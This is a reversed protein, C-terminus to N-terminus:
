SLAYHSQKSVVDGSDSDVDRASGRSTDVYVLFALLVSFTLTSQPIDVVPHDLQFAVLSFGIFTGGYIACPLSDSRLARYGIICGVVLIAVFALGTIIGARYVTLLPANAVFNLNFAYAGNKFEPRGWGLGFPWHGAMQHPFNQLADKRASTGTDDSSFSSFIRHRVAPTLLAVAVLLGLAGVAIQRDRSRMTHFILVLVLGVLFSFIAQRSLTLLLAVSLIVALCNRLWGRFLILCLLLAILISIGAANPEVWTGGLRVSKGAGQNSFVYRGTDERGYGFPSLVRILRHNPDGAVVAIGFLANATAAVVFIRGFRALDERSLRLLAVMVLTNVTWKVFEALDTVTRGTAVLSVASALILLLVAIEVPHFSTRENPYLIAALIAGFAFPLYLPAHVGPFYGFPISGLIAALAWYLWLPHRMGVYIGVTAALLGVVLLAV